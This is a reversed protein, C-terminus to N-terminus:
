AGNDTHPAPALDAGFTERLYGDWHARAGQKTMGLREGVEGWTAGAQRCALIQAALTRTLEDTAKQYRVLAATLRELETSTASSLRRRYPSM